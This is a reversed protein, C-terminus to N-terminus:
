GFEAFYIGGGAVVVVKDAHGFRQAVHIQRGFKGDNFHTHTGFATISENTKVSDVLVPESFTVDSSSVGKVEAHDYIDKDNRGQVEHYWEYNVTNGGKIRITQSDKVWRVDFGNEDASHKWDGTNPHDEISIISPKFPKEVKVTDGGAVSAYLSLPYNAETSSIVEGRNKVITRITNHQDKTSIKSSTENQLSLVYDTQEFEKTYDDPLNYSRNYSVSVEYTEAARNIGVFGVKVSMTVTMTHVLTSNNSLQENKVSKVSVQRDVIEAYPLQEEGWSWSEWSFPANVVVGDSLTINDQGAFKKGTFVDASKSTETVDGRNHSNGIDELEKESYSLSYVASNASPLTTLCMSTTPSAGPRCPVSTENKGEGLVKVCVSNENSVNSRAM